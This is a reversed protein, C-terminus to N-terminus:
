NKSTSLACRARSLRFLFCKSGVEHRVAALDTREGFLYKRLDDVNADIPNTNLRREAAAAMAFAADMAFRLDM